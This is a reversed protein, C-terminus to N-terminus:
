QAEALSMGPVTVRGFLTSGVLAGAALYTGTDSAPLIDYTHSHPYAVVRVREVRAGFLEDGARADEVMRGDALPHAGSIALTRGSELLVEVVSHDKVERRVVQRIPVVALRGRHVSYVLEGERLEAIPREGAPTAIPTDPAACRCGACGVPCTGEVPAQCSPGFEIPGPVNCCLEAQACCAVGCCHQQSSCPTVGECPAPGCQGGGCFPAADTKCANGCAGCNLPDNELRRCKGDCCVTADACEPVCAAGSGTSAATSSGTGASGSSTTTMAGGAGTTGTTGSASADSGSTTGQAASGGAAAGGGAGEGTSVFGTCAATGILWVFPFARERM